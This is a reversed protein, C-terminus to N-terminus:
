WPPVIRTCRVILVATNAATAMRGATMTPAVAVARRRRGGGAGIVMAYMVSRVPSPADSFACSVPRSRPGSQVQLVGLAADFPCLSTGSTMSSWVLGESIAVATCSASELAKPM